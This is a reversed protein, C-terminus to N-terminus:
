VDDTDYFMFDPLERITKVELCACPSKKLAENHKDIGIPEVQYISGCGNLLLLTTVLLFVKM